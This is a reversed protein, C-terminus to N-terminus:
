FPTYVYHFYVFKLFFNIISCMGPVTKSAEYSSNKKVEYDNFYYYM